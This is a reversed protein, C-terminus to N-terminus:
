GEFPKSLNEISSIDIIQNNNLYLERLNTLDALPSIDEILNHSLSLIKLNSLNKLFSIDSINNEELALIEIHSFDGTGIFSFDKFNFWGSFDLDILEYEIVPLLIKKFYDLSDQSIHIEKDIAAEVRKLAAKIEPYKM